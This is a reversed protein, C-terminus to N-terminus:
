KLDLKNTLLRRGIDTPGYELMQMQDYKADLEKYFTIVEQYTATINRSKSLEFPTLQAMAILFSGTLIFTLFAKKMVSHLYLIM